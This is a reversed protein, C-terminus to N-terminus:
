PVLIGSLVKIGIDLIAGAAAPGFIQELHCLLQWWKCPYGKLYPNFNGTSENGLGGFLETGTSKPNKELANIQFKLANAFSVGNYSSIIKEDSTRSVLNTYIDNLLARGETTNRWTGCILKEFSSYDNSKLFPENLQNKIKVFSKAVLVRAEEKNLDQANGSFGFFVTAILGFLLKKM